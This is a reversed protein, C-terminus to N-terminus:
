ALETSTRKLVSRTFLLRVLALIPVSLFVGPVGGIEAGAFVGFIVWIPHLEVGRSMIKPSIVYDQVLRYAGLFILIWWLHPYGTLATVAVIVVMATLPGVVPIFECFFAAASLLLAYQVGLASLVISFVVLVTFCLLLLARMYQLLLDQIEGITERANARKAGSPFLELFGDRLRTGDKLMFFSLIPIVILDILNTSAALVRLGYRPVAAAFEGLQGRLRGEATAIAPAMVPYSQELRSFFGRIDPPQAILQRAQAAVKSGVVVLMATLLGILLLYTLALAPTRNKASFRSSIREVLPYLLCAFLLAVAFLFLTGRIQYIAALLLLTLAATWTVRAAKPDIGPLLHGRFGIRYLGQM